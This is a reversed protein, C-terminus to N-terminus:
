KEASSPTKIAECGLLTTVKGAEAVLEEGAGEQQQCDRATVECGRGWRGGERLSQTTQCSCALSAVETCPVSHQPHPLPTAVWGRQAAGSDGEQTQCRELAIIVGNGGQGLAAQGAM